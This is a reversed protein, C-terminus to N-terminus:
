VLKWKKPEVDGSIYLPHKPEGSKNLELYFVNDKFLFNPLLKVKSSRELFSGHNGWACVVVDSKEISQLIAEDNRSDEGVAKDGQAKMDNPSTARYAFINTIILTSFNKKVAYSECRGITPDNFFEDATSPNLM